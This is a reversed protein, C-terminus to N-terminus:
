AERHVVLAVVIGFVVHGIASGAVVMIMSGEMPAMPGTMAELIPIAVQAAIFAAIGFLVGKLILSSIKAVLRRFLFVYGLAFVIGTVFHLLWGAAIPIGLMGSLMDAPNMAPMGALGGLFLLLSMVATGLIGALLAKTLDSTMITSKIKGFGKLLTCLIKQGRFV